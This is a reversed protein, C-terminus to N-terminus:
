EYNKRRIAVTRLIIFEQELWRPFVPRLYPDIVMTAAM